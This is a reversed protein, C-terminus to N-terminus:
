MRSLLQSSNLISNVSKFKSPSSKYISASKQVATKSLCDAEKNLNRKVWESQIKRKNTLGVAVERYMRFIPKNIRWDGKFQNIVLQSDGKIIVQDKKGVNVDIWMLAYILAMWESDNSTGLLLPTCALKEFVDDNKFVCVGCGLLSQKCGKPTRKGGDFNVVFKNNAM